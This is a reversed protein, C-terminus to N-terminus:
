TTAAKLATGDAKAKEVQQEYGTTDKGESKALKVAEDWNEVREGGVNPQLKGGINSDRRLVEQRAGAAERRKRMQRSVRDAKGSWDDGKLVFGTPEFLRRTEGECSPCAEPSDFEAMPKTVDFSTECSDCRYGYTPM